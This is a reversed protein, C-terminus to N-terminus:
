DNSIKTESLRKLIFYPAGPTTSEMLYDSITQKNSEQFGKLRLIDGSYDGVIYIYRDLYDVYRDNFTKIDLAERYDKILEFPGHNTEIM